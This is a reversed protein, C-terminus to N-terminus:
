TITIIGIFFLIAAVLFCHKKANETNLQTKVERWDFDPNLLHSFIKCYHLYFYIDTTSM